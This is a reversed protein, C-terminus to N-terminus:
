WIGKDSGTIKEAAMAAAGLFPLLSLRACNEIQGRGLVHAFESGYLRASHPMIPVRLFGHNYYIEASGFRVADLVFQPLNLPTGRYARVYDSIIALYTAVGEWIGATEALFRLEQYNILGADAIAANDVIDCLRINFHRYVRQLASIMLRDPISPVRFRYGGVEIKRTRTELTSAIAVQEGTQGLRGVHIEIPEPLDPLLFNWKNALHDGWSRPAISANFCQEMLARVEHPQANTFLDMDSGFDPWHDLTKMVTVGYGHDQFAACVEHLRFLATKIRAKESSLASEALQLWPLSQDQHALSLFEELGRVVVHNLHALALIDEFEDRSLRLAAADRAPAAPSRPSDADSPRLLLRSLITMSSLGPFETARRNM